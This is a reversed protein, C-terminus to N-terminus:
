WGVLKEGGGGKPVGRPSGAVWTRVADDDVNIFQVCLVSDLQGACNGTSVKCNNPSNSRNGMDPNVRNKPWFAPCIPRQVPSGTGGDIIIILVNRIWHYSGFYDFFNNFTLICENIEICIGLYIV